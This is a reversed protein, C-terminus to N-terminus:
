LLWRGAEMIRRGDAEITPALTIFDMHADSDWDAGTVHPYPSGAAIHVSPYKEDHLMNGLLKPLSRNTGMGFEGIRSANADTRIYREVAEQLEARGSWVSVVRGGRLELRVPTATIVGYRGALHDGLVGDVVFTGEAYAPATYVEAGPLNNSGRPAFKERYDGDSNVWRLAPAFRFLADTGNAGRVRIERVARVAEYVRGTFAWMERPDDQLASELVEYTVGPLNIHKIRESHLAIPRRVTALENTQGDSAARVLVFVVDCDDLAVRIEDPLAPLPRPGCRDLNFVACKAVLPGARRVLEEVCLRISDDGVVVLRDTPKLGASLIMNEVAREISM